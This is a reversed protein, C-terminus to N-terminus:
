RWFAIWELFEAFKRSLFLLHDTGYFAVDVVIGGVILIALALAIPNTM